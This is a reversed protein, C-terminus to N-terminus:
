IILYFTIVFTKGIKCINCKKTDNQCIECNDISCRNTCKGSQLSFGSECVFCVQEDKCNRCNSSCPDCQDGYFGNECLKCKSSDSTSYLLCNKIPTPVPVCKGTERDLSTPHRCLLCIDRSIECKMCNNTCGGSTNISSLLLSFVTMCLITTSSSSLIFTSPKSM